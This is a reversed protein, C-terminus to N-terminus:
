MCVVCALCIEEATYKGSIIEYCFITEREREREGMAHTLTRNTYNLEHRVIELAAAWLKFKIGFLILFFNLGLPHPEYTQFSIDNQIRAFRLLNDIKILFIVFFAREIGALEEYDCHVRGSIVCRHAWNTPHMKNVFRLWVTLQVANDVFECQDTDDHAFHCFSFFSLGGFAFGICRLQCVIFNPRIAFLSIFTLVNSIIKSCSNFNKAITANCALSHMVRIGNLIVDAFYHVRFRFYWHFSTSPFPM